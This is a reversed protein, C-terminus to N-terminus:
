RVGSPTSLIGLRCSTALGCVVVLPKIDLANECLSPLRDERLLAFSSVGQFLFHFNLVGM